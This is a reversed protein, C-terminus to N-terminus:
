ILAQLFKAAGALAIRADGEINCELAVCGDFGIERLAALSPAFDIHGQGPPLRNSDAIHMHQIYDGASRFEIGVYGLTTILEWKAILSEAPILNEQCALKM